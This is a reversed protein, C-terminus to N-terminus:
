SLLGLEAKERLIAGIREPTMQAEFDSGCSKVFWRYVEEAKRLNGGFLSPRASVEDMAATVQRAIERLYRDLDGPGTVLKNYLALANIKLTLSRPYGSCMLNWPDASVSQDGANRFDTRLLVCPIDLMKAAMFEVVTGSDLDTGDFNLLALHCSMVMDLDGNRINANRLKNGENAQPLLTRYKGASAEAIAASLLLNGALHKFDFLDGAHYVNMLYEGKVSQRPKVLRRRTIYYCLM